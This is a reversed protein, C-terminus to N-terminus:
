LDRSFSVRICAMPTKHPFIVFYFINIAEKGIFPVVFFNDKVRIGCPVTWLEFSRPLAKFSQEGTKKVGDQTETVGGYGGGGPGISAGDSHDTVALHDGIM